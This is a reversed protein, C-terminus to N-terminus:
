PSQQGVPGLGVRVPRVPHVHIRREHEALAHHPHEAADTTVGSADHDDLVGVAIRSVWTRTATV